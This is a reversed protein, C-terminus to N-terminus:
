FLIEFKQQQLVLLLRHGKPCELVYRNDDRFEVVQVPRANKTGAPTCELCVIPLKM